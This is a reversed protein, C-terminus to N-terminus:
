RRAAFQRMPDASDDVGESGNEHGRIALSAIPIGGTSYDPICLEKQDLAQIHLLSPWYLYCCRQFHRRFLFERVALM